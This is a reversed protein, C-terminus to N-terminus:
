LLPSKKIKAFARPYGKPTNKVKEIVTVSRTGADPIVYEGDSIIKGGLKVIGGKAEDLEAKHDQGKMALFLGGVRVFPLCLEDLVSLRAVARSVCVDFSERFESQNAVDEARAPLTKVNLSLSNAVSKVFELKKATSDLATIELDPRAIALPLTPFGGGCGVDIVKSNEPIFKSVCLCDAIHRYVVGTVDTIATLNMYSNVRILENYLFEMKSILADDSFEELSADQMAKKYCEEFTMM